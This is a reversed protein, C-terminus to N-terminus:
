DLRIIAVDKIYFVRKRTGLNLEFRAFPSDMTSIFEIEVSTGVTLVNIHEQFGITEYTKYSGLRVTISDEIDSWITFVCKYRKDKVVPINEHILQVSYSYIGGQTVSVKMIRSNENEQIISTDGVGSFQNMLIWDSSGELFNSNSLLNKQASSLSDWVASVYDFVYESAINYEYRLPRFSAVFRTNLSDFLDQNKSENFHITGDESVLASELPLGDIFDHVKFKVSLNLKEANLNELQSYHYFLGISSFQSLDYEFPVYSDGILIKGKMLANETFDPAFSVKLEKLYGESNLDINKFADEITASESFSIPLLNDSSFEYPWLRLGQNQDISVNTYYSSFSRIETLNLVFDEILFPEESASKLAVNSAETRSYDISFDATLAISPNGIEIGSIKDSSQKSSSCAFFLSAMVFFLCYLFHM